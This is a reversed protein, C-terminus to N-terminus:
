SPETNFSTTVDATLLGLNRIARDFDQEDIALKVGKQEPMDRRAVHRKLLALQMMLEHSREGLHRLSEEFETNKGDPGLETGTFSNAINFLPLAIDALVDVSLRSEPREIPAGLALDICFAGTLSGYYEKFRLMYKESGDLETKVFLRLGRIVLDSRRYEFEPLSLAKTTPSFRKLADDIKEALDLDFVDAVGHANRFTFRNRYDPRIVEIHQVLLDQSPAKALYVVLIDSQGTEQPKEHRM